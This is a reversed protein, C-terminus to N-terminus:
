TSTDFNFAVPTAVSDGGTQRLANALAAAPFVDAFGGGNGTVRRVRLEELGALAEAFLRVTATPRRMRLKLNGNAVQICARLLIRDRDGQPAAAWVAELIEHCEWFFGADNLALGYRLAPHRPPVVGEFRAPVLAKVPALREHDAELTEGPVYAWGPFLFDIRM